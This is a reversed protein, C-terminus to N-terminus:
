LLGCEFYPIRFDDLQLLGTKEKRWDVLYVRSCYRIGRMGQLTSFLPEKEYMGVNIFPLERSERAIGGILAHFADRDNGRAAWFSLTAFRILSNEPQILPYGFIRSVIPMRALVRIMGGFKAAYYQKYDTQDWLAGCAALDGKKSWVGIFHDTKIGQYLGTLLEKETIAQYFQRCKGFDTVLQLVDEMDKKECRRATFHRYRSFKRAYSVSIAKVEYNGLFSYEPMFSRKKELLKRAYVNGELITTYVFKIDKKLAYDGLFRYGGPLIPFIKRYSQKIHLGFLYGVKEVSGNIYARKVALAGIGAINGNQIDRCLAVCVEDGEYMFSVYADPRRTHILSIDGESKDEELLRLIEGSDSTQAEEFIFRSNRCKM